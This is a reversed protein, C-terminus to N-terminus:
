DFIRRTWSRTFCRQFKGSYACKEYHSGVFVEVWKYLQPIEKRKEIISYAKLTAPGIDGDVVLDSYLIKVKDNKLLIMPLMNLARQLCEAGEWANVQMDFVNEAIKQDIKDLNFPKWYKKEFIELALEKPLDKMKGKYGYDRANEETVGFRTAKGSDHKSFFFGGEYGDTREMSKKFDGMKM